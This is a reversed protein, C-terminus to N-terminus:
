GVKTTTTVAAVTTTTVGAAVTTSGGALATTTTTSGTGVYRDVVPFAPAALGVQGLTKTFAKEWDGNRQMVELRDNLFARLADDGKPVGIGYPDDSFNSKLVRNRGNSSQVLGALVVEDSIIGQVVGDALRQSCQQYTDVEIINAQPARTRFPPILTSGAKACVSRGNLDSIKQLGREADNVMVDGHSVYYPGAFDVLRKRADTIPYSAIVIDVRGNQLFTERNNSVTDVYEIHQSADNAVGGFISQAVLKSIEIDFGQPELDGGTKMGFGPQNFPVGIRLKSSKQLKELSSGVPFVPAPIADDASGPVIAPPPPEESNGCGAVFLVSISLAAVLSRLKLV